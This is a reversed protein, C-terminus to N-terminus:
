GEPIHGFWVSDPKAEPGWAKFKAVLSTEAPIVLVAQTETNPPSVGTWNSWSGWNFWELTWFVTDPPTSTANFVVGGSISEWWVDETPRDEAELIGCGALLLALIAWRM